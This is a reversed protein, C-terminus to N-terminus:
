KLSNSTLPLERARTFTRSGAMPGVHREANLPFMGSLVVAGSLILTVTVSTYLPVLRSGGTFTGIRLPAPISACSLATSSNTISPKPSM